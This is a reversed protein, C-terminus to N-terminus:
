SNPISYINRARDCSSGAPSRARGSSPRSGGAARCARPPGRTPSVGARSDASETSTNPPGHVRPWSARVSSTLPGVMVRITSPSTPSPRAARSSCGSLARWTSIEAVSCRARASAPPRAAASRRSRRRAGSAAWRPAATSRTRRRAAARATRRPHRRDRPLPPAGRRSLPYHSPRRRDRDGLIPAHCSMPETLQGTRVARSDIRGAM